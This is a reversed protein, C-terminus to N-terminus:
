KNSPMQANAWDKNIKTNSVKRSQDWDKTTVVPFYGSESPCVKCPATNICVPPRPMPVQWRNTDLITYQNDWNNAINGGMPSYFESPLENYKHDSKIDSKIKSKSNAKLKELSAIVEDISLLKSDLKLKINQIENVDLVGRENLENILSSYYKSAIMSSSAISQKMNLQETLQNIKIELDRKVKAVEVGCSSNTPIITPAMTMKPSSITPAMTMKPSSITPAMTPLMRPSITPAMTPLMRPSITPAMTPLMRPSITPAMTMKPSSITPLMRPSITPAMTMKPSSITPSMRPAMTPSITIKPSSITPSMRPAMTPSMTTKPAVTPNPLKPVAGLGTNSSKPVNLIPGLADAFAETKKFIFCDVCVLGFAVVLIILLLDKNSLDQSPVLKLITYVLGIVVIYKVM